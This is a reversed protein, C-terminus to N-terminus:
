VRVVECQNKRRNRFVSIVLATFLLLWFIHSIFMYRVFPKFELRVMDVNSPLLV